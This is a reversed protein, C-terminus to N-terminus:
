GEGDGPPFVRKWLRSMGGLLVVILVLSWIGIAIPSSWFVLLDGQSMYLGERFHKQIM